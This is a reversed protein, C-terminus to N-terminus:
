EILLEQGPFIKSNPSLRNLRLFDALQMNHKLAIQFPSDGSKVRYLLHRNKLRKSSQPIKLRQGIFLDSSSLNNLRQIKKTTTGYRSAINWLSDGKRITHIVEKQKSRRFTKKSLQHGTFSGKENIKVPIKLKKGAIITNGRINNLKKVTQVTVHYNKAINYLSEGKKVKHYVIPKGPKRPAVYVPIKSLTSLLKKKNNLPVKLVYPESPTIRYRLEPNLEKLRSEPIGCKKEIHSFHIQKSVELTEYYLPPDINKPNFGYKEMNKVIHLTALFKPVYRATENPLKEYLDWFNDLYNVNQKRITRLVRGEGCNYAALVTIWDGFIRHLETLYSIAAQTSKEPDMREDVYRNRKLGFKYGTSPIFQWLGLARSRSLARVKFGSEILPIWSLAVPLGAKKLEAVIYPRYKGSRKFSNQFFTREKKLYLDVEQKIHQNMVIPIEEHTGNVVINRSAYIEIIRKSIMYRLDEKQQFLEPIDDNIKLILDYARDLSELANELEGKQWFDQSAGYFELAEDLMKQGDDEHIDEHIPPEEEKEFEKKDIAVPEPFPGQLNLELPSEEEIIFKDEEDQSATLLEDADIWYPQLFTCSSLLLCHCIFFCVLSFRSIMFSRRIIWNM